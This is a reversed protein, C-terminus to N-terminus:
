GISIIRKEAGSELILKSPLKLLSSKTGGGGVVFFRTLVRPDIYVPLDDPLCVPPVGGAPFGILDLIEDPTAMAWRKPAVGEQLKKKDVRSGALIIAIVFNGESKHKLCISKIFQSKELGSVEVAEAVSRVPENYQYLEVGDNSHSEIWNKFEAMKKPEPSTQTEDMSSMRMQLQLVIAM